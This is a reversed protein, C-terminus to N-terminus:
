LDITYMFFSRESKQQLTYYAYYTPILGGMLLKLVRQFHSASSQMHLVMLWPTCRLRSLFFILGETETLDL